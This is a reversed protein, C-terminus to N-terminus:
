ALADELRTLASFLTPPEEGPPYGWGSAWCWLPQTVPRVDVTEFSESIQAGLETMLAAAADAIELLAAVDEAAAAQDDDDRYLPFGNQGRMLKARIAALDTM